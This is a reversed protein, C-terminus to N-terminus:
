DSKYRDDTSVGITQGDFDYELELILDIYHRAKLLDKAGGKDKYRFIYKIINGQSFTMNNSTIFEIPQIGLVKYHSGGEQIKLSSM